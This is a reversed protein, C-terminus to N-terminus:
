RRKADSEFAVPHWVWLRRIPDEAGNATATQSETLGSTIYKDFSRSGEGWRGATRLQWSKGGCRAGFICGTKRWTYTTVGEYGAATLIEKSISSFYGVDMNVEEQTEQLDSEKKKM